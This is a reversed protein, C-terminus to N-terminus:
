IERSLRPSGFLYGQGYNIGYDLLDVLHEEAEIKEVISQIGARELAPKVRYFQLAQESHTLTNLATSASVKVFSM